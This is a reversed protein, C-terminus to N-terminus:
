YETGTKCIKYGIVMAITIITITLLNRAKDLIPICSVTATTVIIAKAFIIPECNLNVLTLLKILAKGNACAEIGQSTGVITPITNDKNKGFLCFLSVNSISYNFVDIVFLSLKKIVM